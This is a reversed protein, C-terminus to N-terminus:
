SYYKVRLRRVIYESFLRMPYGGAETIPKSSLKIVSEFKYIKPSSYSLTVLVIPVKNDILRDIVKPHTEIYGGYNSLIIALDNSSLKSAIALQKDYTKGIEILKGNLIFHTQIEEAYTLTQSYAFISCNHNLIDEILKDVQGYNFTQVTDQIAECIAKGYEDLFLEPKNKLTSLQSNTMRFSSNLDSKAIEGISLKFSQFDEYGFRRVFRTITPESVFTKNAIQAISMSEISALNSLLFQIIEYNSDNKTERNFYEVMNEFNQM